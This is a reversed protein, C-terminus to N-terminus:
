RLTAMSLIQQKIFEHKSTGSIHFEKDLAEDLSKYRMMRRLGQVGERKYIKDLLVGTAIHDAHIMKDATILEEVHSLDTGPYSNLYTAMRQVMWHFDHGLGGALYYILSHRLPAKPFLEDFYIHLVEHLYGEGLGQCFVTRTSHDSIGSPSPEDMDFNYDLGRMAEYDTRNDAFYYHIPVPSLHWQQEIHQLRRIM